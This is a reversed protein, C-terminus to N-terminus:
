KVIITGAMGAGGKAGHLTCYYPITGPKSFTHAFEDGANMCKSPDGVSCDPHSDFSGDEATVDHQLTGTQFWTVKTGVAVSIERPKFNSDVVEVRSGGGPTRTATPSATPSPSPSEGIGPFGTEKAGGGCAALLLGFVAVLTFRGTRHVM